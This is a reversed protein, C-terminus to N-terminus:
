TSELNAIPVPEIAEAPEFGFVRGLFYLEGDLARRINPARRFGHQEGEFEVLAVPLRKAKVAEYMLEAQNAPVVRDELGQFLILPAKMRQVAHIPSREVYLDRREPYPGVLAELYRSEFKHTDRALAELDSIGYHSAGAKFVERFTLAALATYGSASWGRIALREGDARGKRVLCLAAAVCDDVNVIGWRGALRERYARGYGTSGGYNVDLVGFGRSTWYQIDLSLATGAQATPGGHGMVALPPREHPAGASAEAGPACPAQAAGEYDKNRPAYYLAHATGGDRAPFELPEPVSLYGPDIALTSSARLRELRGSRLDLRALVRAETPSGAIFVAAGAGARLAGIETFPTAVPEIGTMSPRVIGLRWTGSQTYTCVLEDASAFGYTSMGFVWQPLGFEAELPALPRPGEDELRYLNWWGSRDSVFHLLGAPSWEPQFVSEGPGGAVRRAEALRGDAAVTATWLETGDWPMQPHDWALWAIRRGDPSLRPNSYFDNGAALVTGGDANPGTPDLAVLANIPEHGGARHDERVCLLRAHAADFRFDAYRLAAGGADPTLPEPDEGPRCRYVRQDPFHAFYLNGGAVTYAGGGYEHVRTRVNYPAPVADATVGEPGRRM